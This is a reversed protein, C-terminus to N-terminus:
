LSYHGNKKKETQSRLFRTPDVYHTCLTIAYHERFLRIEGSAAPRARGMRNLSNLSTASAHSVARTHSRQHLHSPPSPLFSSILTEFKGGMM